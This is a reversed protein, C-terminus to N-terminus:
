LDTETYETGDLDYVAPANWPNEIFEDSIICKGNYVKGCKEAIRYASKNLWELPVVCFGNGLDSGKATLVPNVKRVTM